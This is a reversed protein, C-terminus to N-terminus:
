GKMWQAAQQSSDREALFLPAVAKTYFVLWLLSVCFGALVDSAYHVGLYIRSIGILIIVLAFASCIAIRARRDKAQHWVLWIILGFFAMSVMSHGSPFSYGSAAVLRFGDPRPRQVINKLLQNLLIVLFLNLTVCLGPRRGPVLGIVVLCMVFLVLPSALNSLQEMYPTLWDARMGEVIVRYAVIDITMLPAELLDEVIALLVGLAVVVVIPRRNRWLLDRFRRPVSRTSTPRFDGETSSTSQAM